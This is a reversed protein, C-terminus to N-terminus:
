CENDDDQQYATQAKLPEKDSQAKLATSRAKTSKLVEYGIKSFSSQELADEYKTWHSSTTNLITNSHRFPLFMACATKTYTERRSIASISPDTSNIELDQISGISGKQMSIVPIM